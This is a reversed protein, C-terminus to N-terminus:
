SVPDYTGSSSLLRGGQTARYGGTLLSTGAETVGALMAQEGKYRALAIANQSRTRSVQGGYRIALADMEAQRQTEAMVDIASGALDLGSAGQRAISTSLLRRRVAEQQESQFAVQRAAADANIVDAKADLGALQQSRYGQYLQGGAQLASGGYLAATQYTAPRASGAAAVLSSAAAM